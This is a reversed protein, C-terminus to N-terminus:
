NPSLIFIIGILIYTIINSYISYKVIDSKKYRKKLFFVNIPVEIILTLFFAIILVFLVNLITPDDFANSSSNDAAWSLILRLIGTIGILTSILNSIIATGIIEFNLWKACLQKSLYIGEIIIVSVFLIIGLLLAGIAGIMIDLIVM